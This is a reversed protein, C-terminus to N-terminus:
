PRSLWAVFGRPDFGWGVSQPYFRRFVAMCGRHIPGTHEPRQALAATVWDALSNADLVPQMSGQQETLSSCPRSAWAVNRRMMSQQQNQPCNPDNPDCGITLPAASLTLPQSNADYAISDATVAVNVQGSNYHLKFYGVVTNSDVGWKGGSIYVAGNPDITPDSSWQPDWGYQNCDATSMATTINADGAVSSGVAMSALPVQSCVYVTVDSDPTPNNNDAVLWMSPSPSTTNNFDSFSEMEAFAPAYWSVHYLWRGAFAALDKSDITNGDALNYQSSNTKWVNALLAFDKFDVIGDGNFDPDCYYKDAGIDIQSTGDGNGDSVRPQGDVDTENADLITYLNGADICPSNWSLHYDIGANVFNPNSPINGNGSHGGSICCYTVKDYTVDASGSLGAATNSYIICNSINPDPLVVMRLKTFEPAM